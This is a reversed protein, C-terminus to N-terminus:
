YDDILKLSAILIAMYIWIFGLYFMWSRHLLVVALIIVGLLIYSKKSLVAKYFLYSILSIILFLGVYGSTVVVRRYDSLEVEWYNLYNMGMGFIYKSYNDFDLYEIGITRDNLISDSQFKLLVFDNIVQNVTPILYLSFCLLLFFMLWLIRKYSFYKFLIIFFLILYATASFTFLMALLIVGGKYDKFINNIFILAAGLYIGFHGPELFWGNARYFSYSGINIVQSDLYISFFYLIVLDKRTENPIVIYPFNIKIIFFISSIITIIAIFFMLNIYVDKVGLLAKNNVFFILCCTTLFVIYYLKFEDYFRFPLFIYVFVLVFLAVIPFIDVTLTKAKNLSFALLFFLFSLLLIFSPNFWTYVPNAFSILLFAISSSLLNSKNIELSM